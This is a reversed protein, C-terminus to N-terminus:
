NLGGRLIYFSESIIGFVLSNPCFDLLHQGSNNRSKYSCCSVMKNWFYINKQFWKLTTRNRSPALNISYWSNCIWSRSILFQSIREMHRFHAITLRRYPPTTRMGVRLIILLLYPASDHSAVMCKLPFPLQCLRFCM